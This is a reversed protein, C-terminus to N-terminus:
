RNAKHRKLRKHNPTLLGIVPFLIGSWFVCNSFSCPLVLLLKTPIVLKHTHADASWYLGYFNKDRKIISSITNKKQFYDDQDFVKDAQYRTVRSSKFPNFYHVHCGTLRRVHNDM